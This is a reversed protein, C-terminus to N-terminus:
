IRVVLLGDHLIISSDDHGQNGIAGPHRLHERIGDAPEDCGQAGVRNRVEDDPTEM